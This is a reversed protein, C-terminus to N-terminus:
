MRMAAVKTTISYQALLTLKERRSTNATTTCNKKDPITGKASIVPNVGNKSCNSM